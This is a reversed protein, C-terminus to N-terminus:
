VLSILALTWGSGQIHINMATKNIIALVQLVVSIDKLPYISLAFQLIYM